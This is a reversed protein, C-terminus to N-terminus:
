FYNYLNQPTYDMIFVNPHTEQIVPDVWDFKFDYVFSGVTFAKKLLKKLYAYNPKESFRLEKAYKLMLAVELNHLFLIGHYGYCLTDISIHKKLLMIKEYKEQRDKAEMRQWPLAGSLFYIMTYVTAEIDDRRSQEHGLHTNLSAYRATGTLCKGSRFPIHLGSTADRYCKALGFDVLYVLSSRQTTGILFNDPKVDRHIFGM